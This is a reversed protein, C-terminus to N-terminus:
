SRYVSTLPLRGRMSSTFTSPPLNVRSAWTPPKGGCAAARPGRWPARTTNIKGMVGRGTGGHLPRHRHMVCSARRPRKCNKGRAGRELAGGQTHTGGGRKEAETHRKSQVGPFLAASLTSGQHTARQARAFLTHTLGVATSCFFALTHCRMTQMTHTSGLIPGAKPEQRRAGQRRRGADFRRGSSGQM